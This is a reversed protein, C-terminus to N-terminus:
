TRELLVAYRGGPGDFTRAAAWGTGDLIGGLEDRSLTLYDFWPTRRERYRIRIRWQGPMRGRRTNRRLYARDGDDDTVHPDRTGAVIRGDPPMMSAMRRLLRRGREADGILGLNSGLMVVTDFTGLAPGVSAISRVEARLVGRRRCTEVALPSVDIGLVDHGREQLHLCARGAGCGVDLVRGRVYRTVAREHPWWRPFPAFYLEPGAGPYVFGDDREVIEYGAGTELHDLMAAGFADQRASLM